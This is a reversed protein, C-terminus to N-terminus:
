HRACLLYNLQKVRSFAEGENRVGRAPDGPQTPRRKTAKGPGSNVLSGHWSSSFLLLCQRWFVFCFAQDTHGQFRSSWLDGQISIKMQFLGTSGSCIPVNLMVLRISHYTVRAVYLFPRWRTYFYLNRPKM